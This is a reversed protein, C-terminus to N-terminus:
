DFGVSLVWIIAAVPIAVALATGPYSGLRAGASLVRETNNTFVLQGSPSADWRPVRVQHYTLTIGILDWKMLALEAMLGSPSFVPGASMDVSLTPSL